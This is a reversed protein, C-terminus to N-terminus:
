VVIFFLDCISVISVVVSNVVDCAVLPNGVLCVLMFVVLWVFSFGEGGVFLKM